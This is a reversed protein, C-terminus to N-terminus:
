NMWRHTIARQPRISYLDVPQSAHSNSFTKTSVAPAGTHMRNKKSKTACFIIAGLILGSWFELGHSTLGFLLFGVCLGKAFRKLEHGANSRNIDKWVELAIMAGLIIGILGSHAFNQIYMNHAYADGVAKVFGNGGLGILLSAFSHDMQYNLIRAWIDTRGSSLYSVDVLGNTANAAIMRNYILNFDVFYAGAIVVGLSLLFFYGTNKIRIVGIVIILLFALWSTRVFSVYLMYLGLMILGYQMLAPVKVGMRRNFFCFCIVALAFSIAKGALAPHKFFGVFMELESGFKRTIRLQDFPIIQSTDIIDTTDIVGILFPISTLILFASIAHAVHLASMRTFKEILVCGYFGSLIPLFFMFNDVVQATLGSDVGIPYLLLWVLLYTQWKGLKMSGSIFCFVLITIHFLFRWINSLSIGDFFVRDQFYLLLFIASLPILLRNFTATYPIRKLELM